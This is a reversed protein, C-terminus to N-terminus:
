FEEVGKEHLVEAARAVRRSEGCRKRSVIVVEVASETMGEDFGSSDNRKTARLTMVIDDPYKGLITPTVVHEHRRV